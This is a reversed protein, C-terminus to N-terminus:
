NIRSLAFKVVESFIPAAVTGGWIEEENGQPEDIVVICAVEPNEYPAFGLFSTIIRGEDYGPKNKNAKQATGTKGCVKIGDIKAKDGTGGEVVSLM